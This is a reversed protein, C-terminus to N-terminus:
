ISERHGEGQPTGGALFGGDVVITQGNVYASMDSALFVAVEAIDNPVGMRRAPVWPRTEDAYDASEGREAEEEDSLVRADIYGPAVANCNIGHGSLEWAMGATMRTVAAKISGYVLQNPWSRFGQVSSLSIIRGGGGQRIMETAARQSCMFYGKFGNDIQFDFDAATVDLFPKEIPAVANNVMVDIRGHEALFEEFMADVAAKDGIDALHWSAKRGEAEILRLTREASDDRTLDNIGVDAGQRAMALAIGAGIGRRAGTILVKKGNLM